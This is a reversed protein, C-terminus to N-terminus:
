GLKKEYDSLLEKAKGYEILMGDQQITYVGSSEMQRIIDKLWKINTQLETRTM